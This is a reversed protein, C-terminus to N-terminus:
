VAIVSHCKVRMDVCSHCGVRTGVYSDSHKCGVRMDVCGHSLYRVRVDVCYHSHSVQSEHGCLLSQTHSEDMCDNSHTLEFGPFCLCNYSSVTNKCTGNGCPQRDCEYIDSFPLDTCILPRTRAQRHSPLRDTSSMIHAAAQHQKLSCSSESVQPRPSAIAWSGAQRVIHWPRDKGQM